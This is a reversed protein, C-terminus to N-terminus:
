EARIHNRSIRPLMEPPQQGIMEMEESTTQSQRKLIVVLAALEENSMTQIKRRLEDLQEQNESETGMLGDTRM